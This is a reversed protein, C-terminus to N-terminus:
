IVRAVKNAAAIADQILGTKDCDGIKYVEPVIGTLAEYMQDNKVRPSTVIVVDYEGVKHIGNHYYHVGAADVSEIRSNFLMRVNARETDKSRRIYNADTLRKRLYVKRDRTFWKEAAVSDDGGPGVMTVEAGQDALDLAFECGTFGSFWVKKHWGAFSRFERKRDIAEMLSMVMPQGQFVEPLKESTGAALIVADPAFAKVKELTGECCVKVDVGLEGMQGALYDIINQFESLHPTTAMTGVAGGLKGSKEWLTVDHGRQAAVRAAEMGGVGGGIVLIKKKKELPMVPVVGDAVMDLSDYSVSCPFCRTDCGICQRVQSPMCKGEKFKKVTDNDVYHQRGFYLIDVKGERLIKEAMEMSTVRGVGFVPVHAHKKITSSIYIWCARPYYLVPLCGQGAYMSGGQSVDIADLGAKELEPIIYTCIDELTNGLEGKLDDGNIRMTIPFDPGVNKRMEQILEVTFRLRGELDGGYEDDRANFMPDLSCAGFMIDSHANHVSVCDFGARKARGAAIGAYRIIGRIDEKTMIRGPYPPLGAKGTGMDNFAYKKLNEPMDSFFNGQM